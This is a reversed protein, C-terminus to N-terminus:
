NQSKMIKFNNDDPLLIVSFVVVIAREIGNVQSKGKFRLIRKDIYM